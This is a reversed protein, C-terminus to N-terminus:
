TMLCLMPMPPSQIGLDSKSKCIISYYFDLFACCVEHRISNLCLFAFCKVQPGRISGFAKAQITGYSPAQVGFTVCTLLQDFLAPYMAQLSPPGGHVAQFLKVFM